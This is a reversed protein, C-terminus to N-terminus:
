RHVKYKETDTNLVKDLTLAGNSQYTDFMLKIVDLPVGHTNRQALEEPSLGSTGVDEFHINEDAYGISLAYLIYERPDSVRINTNDIIVPSIGANMSEKANELNKKHFNSLQSFDNEAKMKDFFDRYNGTEDILSDTSHIVGNEILSKARTSKGSGPLGRMIILVDNPRTVPVGLANNPVEINEFNEYLKIYKM